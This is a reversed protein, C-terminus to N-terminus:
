RAFKAMTFKALAGEFTAKAKIFPTLGLDDIAFDVWNTMFPEFVVLKIILVSYLKQQGVLM